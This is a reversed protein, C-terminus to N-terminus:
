HHLYISTLGVDYLPHFEAGGQSTGNTVGGYDTSAAADRPGVRSEAALIGAPYQAHDSGANYGAQELQALQAQVEARTVRADSQAFSTIPLALFAAVTAIQILSKM